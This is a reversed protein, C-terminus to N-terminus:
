GKIGKLKDMIKAAQHLYTLDDVSLTGKNNAMDILEEFVADRIRQRVGYTVGAMLEAGLQISSAFATAAEDINISDNWTVSGDNNLRVIEKNSPNHLSMVSPSVSSAINYGNSVIGSTSVWSSNGAIGTVYTGAQPGYSTLNTYQPTGTFTTYNGTTSAHQGQMTTSPLVTMKKTEQTILKPAPNFIRSVLQKIATIM